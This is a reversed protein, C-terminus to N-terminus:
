NPVVFFHSFGSLLFELYKFLLELVSWTFDLPWNEWIPLTAYYVDNGKVPWRWEVYNDNLLVNNTHRMLILTTTNYDNTHLQVETNEIMRQVINKSVLKSYDLSYWPKVNLGVVDFVSLPVTDHLWTCLVRPWYSTIPVCVNESPSHSLVQRTAIASLGSQSRGPNIITSSKDTCVSWTVDM